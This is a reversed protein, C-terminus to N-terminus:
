KLLLLAQNKTLDILAAKFVEYVFLPTASKMKNWANNNKALGLFEHGEWTLRMPANYPNGFTATEGVIILGAERLLLIHYNIENDSYGDINIILFQNYTDCEEIKSLISKILEPDRRM